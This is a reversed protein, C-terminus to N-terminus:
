AIEMFIEECGFVEEAGCAECEYNQADPECGDQEFGCILCFGPNDLSTLRRACADMIADETLSKHWRKRDLM